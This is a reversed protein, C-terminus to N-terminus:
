DEWRERTKYWNSKLTADTSHNEKIDTWRLATQTLSVHCNYANLIKKNSSQLWGFLLAKVGYRGMGQGKKISWKDKHLTSLHHCIKQGNHSLWPFPAPQPGSGPWTKGPHGHPSWSPYLAPWPARVTSLHMRMLTYVSLCQGFPCQKSSFSSTSLSLQFHFYTIFSNTLIAPYSGSLQLTDSVYLWLCSCTFQHLQM